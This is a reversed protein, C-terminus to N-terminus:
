RYSRMVSAALLPFSAKVEVSISFTIFLHHGTQMVQALTRVKDMGPRAEGQDVEISEGARWEEV